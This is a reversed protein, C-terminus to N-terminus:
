DNWKVRESIFGSDLQQFQQNSDGRTMSTPSHLTKHATLYVDRRHASGEALPTTGFIQTHTRADSLTILHL